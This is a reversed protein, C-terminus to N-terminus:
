WGGREGETEVRAVLDAPFATKKRYCDVVIVFADKYEVSQAYSGGARGNDKFTEKTGDRFHITVDSMQAGESAAGGAAM